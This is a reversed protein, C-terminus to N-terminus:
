VNVIKVYLQKLLDNIAFVILNAFFYSARVPFTDFLCSIIEMIFISTGPISQMPFSPPYLFLVIHDILYVIIKPVHLDLM